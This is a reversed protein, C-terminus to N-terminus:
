VNLFMARGMRAYAILVPESPETAAGAARAAFDTEGRREMTTSGKALIPPSGSCSYKASPTVSLRVVSRERM